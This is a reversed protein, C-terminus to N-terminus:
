PERPGSVCFGTSLDIGKPVSRHLDDGYLAKVCFRKAYSPLFRELVKNAEDITKAEELRLEKILRDQFTEFLREVRGKAQPSNAHIVEVGLEKLAREFQSLPAINNLEDEISPKGTSKYTTHKDLYVSLPIGRKKIYRKFSDMAPITGEYEYFRGFPKGTADNIYGMFVCYPCRGELWNHESGDMQVMQGYRNKRQRWQRHPRKKLNKYPINGKILWLRLTEDNVRIKDREFLKESALTPGFDPYKDKFLALVKNKIKDLTTRNSLRGRSQHIIGKDGEERIRKVKRRIQRESLDMTESAEKQTIVKDIAKRIVHLVKLEKQTAMIIDEGAM